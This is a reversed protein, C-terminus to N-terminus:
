KLIKEGDFIMIGYSEGISKGSALWRYFNKQLTTEQPFGEVNGNYFKGFIRWAAPFGDKEVTKLVEFENFFGMLNSNPPFLEANPPYLIWTNTTFVMYPKDNDGRRIYFNFAKKYSDLRIDQPMHGSSPIHLSFVTDGKNVTVGNKTYNDLLFEAKQYQFRGLAFRELNFHKLFWGFCFTGWVNLVTYCENLKCKVDEMLNWFMEEEIGNEFYRQKLTKSCYILFIADLTYLNIGSKKSIEEIEPIEGEYDIEGCLYRDTQEIFESFYRSTRLKDFDSLLIEQADQPFTLKTFFKLFYDRM